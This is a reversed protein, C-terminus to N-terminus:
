RGRNGILRSCKAQLAVNLPLKLLNTFFDSTLNRAHAYIVEPQTVLLVQEKEQCVLYIYRIQDFDSVLRFHALDFTFQRKSNGTNNTM